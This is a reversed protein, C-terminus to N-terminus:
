YGLVDDLSVVTENGCKDYYAENLTKFQRAYVLKTTYSNTRGLRAVFKKDSNRIIVYM